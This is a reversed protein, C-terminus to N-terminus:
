VVPYILFEMTMTVHNKIWIKDIHFNLYTLIIINM